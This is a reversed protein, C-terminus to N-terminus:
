PKTLGLRVATPHDVVGTVPLHVRAQYARVAATTKAGYFGTAPHVGLKVQVVRVRAGSDGPKAYPVVAVPAAVPKSPNPGVGLRFATWDAVVGTMKLHLRAQFAKVAATTRTGYFGTAPHVGLKVQVVRVHAGSDGPKAYPVVPAPPGSVVGGDTPSTPTAPCPTPNPTRYAPALAGSAPRCPGYDVAAVKGTWWSTRKQAGAWSFSFHIHDTHESAGTYPRWGDAPRYAGWIQGDWIIYMIGFRRANWAPEGHPGPALLFQLVAGAVAADQANHVDLMWDWARGEKHESTGGEGCPRTIGGDTGRKYTALMLARFAVVGPKAVPDCSDQPTYPALAEATVPLTVAPQPVPTKAAATALPTLAVAALTGVGVLLAATRAVRPRGQPRGAPANRHRGRLPHRRV